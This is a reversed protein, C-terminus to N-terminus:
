SNWLMKLRFLFLCSNAFFYKFIWNFASIRRNDSGWRLCGLNGWILIHFNTFCPSLSKLLATACLLITNTTNSTCELQFTITCPSARSPFHLPFQRISHTVLVRWAVESCPTDLMEVASSVGEGIEISEDTEGFSSIQNGRTHWWM